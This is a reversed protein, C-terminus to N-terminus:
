VPSQRVGHCGMENRIHFCRHFNFQKRVMWLTQRKDPDTATTVCQIQHLRLDRFVFSCFFNPFNSHVYKGHICLLISVYLTNLASLTISAIHCVCMCSELVTKNVKVM